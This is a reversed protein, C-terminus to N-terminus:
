AGSSLGAPGNRSVLRCRVIATTFERTVRNAVRRLRRIPVAEFEAFRLPSAEVLKRFRRVTMQNIGSEQITRAGDTKYQARWQVLASETFVLHAFPFVSYIHGGYPHFWTPGFSCLVSGGPLLLQHMLELIHAPDDFHEFSDLSVILEAPESWDAVFTCRDAVSAQEANRRAIEIWKRKKDVGIVHRAGRAAMQIAEDGVGCGFDIVTRGRIESWIREGLLIELKSKNVYAPAIDPYGTTGNHSAYNLLRIGITGGLLGV